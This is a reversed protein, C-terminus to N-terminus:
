PPRSYAGPRREARRAAAVGARENVRLALIAGVAFLATLLWIAGRSGVEAKLLGFAGVGVVAALKYVMGWLGFFEATRSEPTFRGVMARSATGVGGLGVGALSAVALFMPTSPTAGDRALMAILSAGVIWVALYLLVTAKAGIRDQFKSTALASLGAAVTLPTMFQVLRLNGRAPDSFALDKLVIAAFFIVAQVAMAYVFFALLFRMLQRYHRARRITEAVRTLATAFVGARNAAPDPPPEPLILAPPIMGALFWLGAFVLLPRWDATASLGLGAMGIYSAVLLLLAGVYGMTWGVASVRGIARRPAVIPLFSAMFNEGLQYLINAPAYLAIALVVAGPGIVGFSCTLTVCGIGTGILMRKRWGRADALAGVFPSVVVTLLMSSAVLLAWLRDGAARAEPTASGVVVEKFYIAFLITNILLTFSQNALDYMGWAWVVRANPLGRFPNLTGAM